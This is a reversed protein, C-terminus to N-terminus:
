ETRVALPDGENARRLSLDNARIVLGVKEDDIQRRARYRLIKSRIVVEIDATSDAPILRGRAAARRRQGVPTFVSFVKEDSRRFLSPCIELSYIRVQALRLVNRGAIM